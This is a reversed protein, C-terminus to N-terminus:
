PTTWRIERATMAGVRVDALSDPMQAEDDAVARRGAMIEAARQPHRPRAIPDPYGEPFRPLGSAPDYKDTAGLTHMVEHAIVISNQGDMDPDAFAYVVGLLGKQLGLSHPVVPTREPDHYLVFARIDALTDHAHRWAYARMRLSWAISGLAGADRALEPPRERVEPYRQVRVPRALALGHRRAEREFFPAISEFSADDLGGVHRRAAASGDAVIPFIGIWLTGDWDTTRRRDVWAGAAVIVLVMSLVAIRLGRWV